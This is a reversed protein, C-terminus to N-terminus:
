FLARCDLIKQERDWGDAGESQGAIIADEVLLICIARRVYVIFVNNQYYSENVIHSSFDIVLICM